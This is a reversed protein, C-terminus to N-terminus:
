AAEKMTSQFHQIAHQLCWNKMNTPFADKDGILVYRLVANDLPLVNQLYNLHRFLESSQVSDALHTAYARRVNKLRGIADQNRPDLRLWIELEDALREANQPTPFPMDTAADFLAPLHEREKPRTTTLATILPYHHEGRPGVQHALPKLRRYATATDLNMSDAYLRPTIHLM